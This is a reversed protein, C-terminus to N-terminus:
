PAYNMVHDHLLQPARPDERRFAEILEAHEASKSYIETHHLRLSLTTWLEIGLGEWVSVLLRNGASEVIERHFAISLRMQEHLDGGGAAEGLRRNHEELADLCGALRPLALEVATRELGARVPFIEALDRETFDRVRAGRNPLTEILRQAELQRLAERVPGQSVGLESAIRREVIREGPEWRGSSIGEVIFERIQDALGTRLLQAPIPANM